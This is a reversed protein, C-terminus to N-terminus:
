RELWIDAWEVIWEAAKAHGEKTWHGDLPYFTLPEPEEEVWERFLPTMNLYPLEKEEVWAGVRKELETTETTWEKEVTTGTESWVDGYREDYTLPSATLVVGVPINKRELREVMSDLLANFAQYKAEGMDGWIDIGEAWYTPHFLGTTLIYANFLQSDAAAVLRPPLSDVWEDIREESLYPHNPTETLVFNIIESDEKPDGQALVEKVIEEPSPGAIIESREEHTVNMPINAVPSLDEMAEVKEWMVYLRPWLSHLVGSAGVREEGDSDIDRPTTEPLTDTVDNSHLAIIVADPDYNMCVHFLIRAHQLPGTGSLGCNLLEVSQDPTSMLEEAISSYTEELPVGAGETFSDGVVAIRFENRPKRLPIEDDRIGQSNTIFPYQFEINNVLYNQSPPHSVQPLNEAPFGLIGLGFDFLFATALMAFGAVFINNILDLLPSKGVVLCTIGYGILIIQVLIIALNFPLSEITGNSAFLWGIVWRNCLLGLLIFFIGM